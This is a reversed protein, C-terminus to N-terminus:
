RQQVHERHTLVDPPYCPQSVLWIMHGYLTIPGGYLLEDCVYFM